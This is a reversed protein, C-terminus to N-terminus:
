QKLKVLVYFEIGHINTDGSSALKSGSINIFIFKVQIKDNEDVLTMQESPISDERSSQGYKQSLEKAFIKLDKEYVTSGKSSIKIVSSEYSYVADIKDSTEGSGNYLSRSDFLFDYGNIDIARDKNNRVYYFHGEPSSYQYEEYSFGFVKGMDEIKFDQPLYRVDNLSHSDKFYDIIRSIEYKDEKTIVASSTQVRGDKLMNNKTLIKEFRNNQSLKSVSYSSQPGFVSLLAIISLTVPIVINWLRKTISFYLMIGAVWLGLVIVYYRNETIGYANIRIGMSIFMMVLIPLIVKPSWVMFKSAWKNNDMIPTIFFLVVIVIVSYWLVLHSVLGVPWQRTVIIKVFYIYLITTYATLLPMVIYLLLIRLLKPYNDRMIEQGRLPIDALFYSPAFVCATFLWTYFYVKSDIHVGLLKDITFLIAALGLYLVVSYIVTTFFGTLVKVIYMEFNEKKLLYPIFLFGMYLALSVATYRTISVMGLKDLLFFYYLVLVIVGMAYYGILKYLTEGDKREFFLKACLSLPVGLAFTMALKQLMDRLNTDQIPQLESTVILTVAVATSFLITVPFRKLSKYLGTLVNNFINTLRM